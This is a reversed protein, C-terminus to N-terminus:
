RMRLRWVDTGRRHWILGTSAEGDLKEFLGKLIIRVIPRKGEATGVSVRYAGGRDGEGM